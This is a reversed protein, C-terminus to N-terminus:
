YDWKVNVGSESEGTASTGTEVSINPTVEIEANVSSSGPRIGQEVSVYIDDSLYKGAELGPGSSASGGGIQLVDVGILRRASSLLGGSSTGGSLEAAANALQIAEVPGLGGKSKNFMLRALIEDRPLAPKSSLAIKPASARGGVTVIVDLDQASSTAVFDLRPDPEDSGDLTVSGKSLLFTKGLFDMQGRVLNLTGRLVPQGMDGAVQLRGGWESELGRGRVFVRGPMDISLDLVIPPAGGQSDSPAGITQGDLGIETVNLTDVGPPLSGGIDVEVSSTQLNGALSGGAARAELRIRGGAAAKVDDRRLLTVDTLVVVASASVGDTASLALQGDGQVTGGLGDTASFRAIELRRDVAKAILTLENLITGAILHEYRGNELSLSGDMQPASATGSVALDISIPGSLTQDTPGVLTWVPAVDGSWTLTVRLPGNEDLVFGPPMTSVAVPLEALLRAPAMDAMTASGRISARGGGSEGDFRGSLSPAGEAERLTLGDVAAEFKGVPNGSPGSLEVRGDLTGATVAVGALAALVTLPVAKAEARADVRSGDATYEVEISGDGIALITRDLKISDADLAFKTQGALRATTGGLDIGLRELRVTTAANAITVNAVAQIAPEGGLKEGGFLELDFGDATGTADLRVIGVTFDGTSAGHLEVAARFSPADPELTLLVTAGLGDATLSTVDSRLQALSLTAEVTQSGGAAGLDIALTGQGDLSVGTAAAVPEIAGYPGAMRGAVLGSALSLTVAGVIADPGSQLTLPRLTLLDDALRYGAEIRMPAGAPALSLAVRGEPGTALHRATVIGGVEGLARGAVALGSLRIRADLDPDAPAGSLTGSLVASGALDAGIPESLRALDSVALTVESDLASFDGAIALAGDVRLAEGEIALSPLNLRGDDGLVIEASVEVDEGLLRDIEDLGSRFRRATGAASAHLTPAASWTARVLGDAELRGETAIGSLPAFRALDDHLIHLAVEAIAAELDLGGTATLRAPGAALAFEDIQVYAGDDLLRLTGEGSIPAGSLAALTAEDSHLDAAALTFDIPGAMRPAAEGLDTTAEVRMDTLSVGPLALSSTEAALHIRPASLPGDASLHIELGTARLPDLLGDLVAGAPLRLTSEVAELRDLGANAGGSIELAFQRNSIKAGRLVVDGGVARRAEIKLSLDDALLPRLRPPALTAIAATGLVALTRDGNGSLALTTDLRDRDGFRAALTGHWDSLPGQGRFELTVRGGTPLGLLGAIAGSPAEDLDLAISLAEAGADYAADLRLNTEPGALTVISLETRATEGAGASLRGDIRMTITEGAIAPGLTLESVRLAAVTLPPIAPLAPAARDQAPSEPLRDLVVREAALLDVAVAGGLLAMPRWAVQMGGVKLWRGDPDTAEVTEVTFRFPVTGDIRGVVFRTAGDESLAESVQGALWRKGTESNLALLAGGPLCVSLAVAMGLWALVRRRPWRRAGESRKASASM